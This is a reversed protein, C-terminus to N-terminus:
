VAPSDLLMGDEARILPGKWGAHRVLGTVDRRGLHPYVHTVLLRGAAAEEAMAALASPTLHTEMAEDDPLSCEGIMIDVGALFRAVASSPGTDGTYGISGGRGDEVRFALSSDTHPTRACALTLERGLRVDRGAELEHIQVPFGPDRIHDGFVEALGAMLSRIGPPGWINLPDSTRDEGGWKLAFLLMPIDGIHDTHFHSIVLHDLRPWPVGFRAMHHVAGPGCDILVRAGPTEISFAACVRAPEPAATGSGVVTLRV